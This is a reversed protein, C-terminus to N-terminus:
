EPIKAIEWKNNVNLYGIFNNQLLKFKKGLIEKKLKNNYDYIKIQNKNYNMIIKFNEFLFEEKNIPEYENEVIKLKKFDYFLKKGDDSYILLVNDNETPYIYTSNVNKIIAITNFGNDMLITDKSNQYFYLDKEDIYNPRIAEFIDLDNSFFINKPNDCYKNNYKNSFISLQYIKDMNDYQIEFGKTEYVEVGAFECYDLPINFDKIENLKSDLITLNNNKYTYILNGLAKTEEYNFNIIINQNSDIIGQKKGKAASFYDKENEIYGLYDYNFGFIIHNSSDVLGYKNNKQVIFYDMKEIYYPLKASQTPIIIKGEFNAVGYLNTNIDQIIVYNNGTWHFSMDTVMPYTMVNYEELVEQNKVVDYITFLGDWSDDQNKGYKEEYKNIVFFRKEPLNYLSDDVSSNIKRIIKGTKQNYIITKGAKENSMPSQSYIVIDPNATKYYNFRSFCNIKNSNTRCTISDSIDKTFYIYNDNEKKYFVEDTLHFAKNKGKLTASFSYDDMNGEGIMYYEDFLLFINHSNDVQEIINMDYDFLIYKENSEILIYNDNSDIIDTSIEEQNNETPNNPVEQHNNETPNNPVEQHNNQNSTKNSLNRQKICYTCIGFIIFIISIIIEVAIIKKTIKNM